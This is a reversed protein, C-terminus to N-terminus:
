ANDEPFPFRLVRSFVRAMRGNGDTSATRSAASALKNVSSTSLSKGVGCEQQTAAEKKEGNCYGAYQLGTLTRNLHDRAPEWDRDVSTGVCIEEGKPTNQCKLEPIISHLDHQEVEVLHEEKLIVPASQGPRMWYGPGPYIPAYRGPLELADISSMGNADDASVPVVEYEM